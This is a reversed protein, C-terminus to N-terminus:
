KAYCLRSILHSPFFLGRLVFGVAFAPVHLHSTPAHPEWSTATDARKGQNFFPTQTERGRNATIPPHECSSKQMM